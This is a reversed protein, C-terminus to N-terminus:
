SWIKLSMDWSGTALAHGNSSVGVCSVRNEHDADKLKGGTMTDWAIIKNDDYGAFVIRGQKSLAISTIGTVIKEDKYLGIFGPARIDWLKCTSDDSGSAVCTGNSMFDVANVDSEHNCSDEGGAEAWRTMHSFKVPDRTDFVRVTTDCSGSAFVHEDTPNISISMVDGTHYDFTTTVQKRSIDWLKCTSDGSSTIIGAGDGTFRACSIYGDHDALQDTRKSQSSIDTVTCINDLGGTAALGGKSQELACTMVWSSKLAIADLKNTSLTDWLILKGDQAASALTASNEKGGWNCAYVKGFHGKLVRRTIMKSANEPVNGDGWSGAVEECGDTSAKEQALATLKANVAALEAKLDDIKSESM